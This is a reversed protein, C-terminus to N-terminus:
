YETKWFSKLVVEKIKQIINKSKFNSKNESKFASEWLVNSIVGDEERM